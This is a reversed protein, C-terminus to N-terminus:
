SNRPPSRRRRTMQLRIGIMWVQPGDLPSLDLGLVAAGLPGEEATVRPFLVIDVHVGVAPLHSIPAPHGAIGEGRQRCTSPFCGCSIVEVSSNRVGSHSM